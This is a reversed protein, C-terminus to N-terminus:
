FIQLNTYNGIIKFNKIEIEQIMEFYKQKLEEPAHEIIGMKCYFLIEAFEEKKVRYNNM